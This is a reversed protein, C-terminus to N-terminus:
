ERCGHLTKKLVQTISDGKDLLQLVRENLRNRRMGEKYHIHTNSLHPNFLDIFGRIRNYTYKGSSICAFTIAFMASFIMGHYRTTINFDMAGTIYKLERDLYPWKLIEVREKPALRRVVKESVQRADGARSRIDYLLFLIFMNRNRLLFNFLGAITAVYGSEDVRQRCDLQGFGYIKIIVAGTGLATKVLSPHRTILM